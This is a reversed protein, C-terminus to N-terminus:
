VLYDNKDDTDEIAKQNFGRFVEVDNVSDLTGWASFMGMEPLYEEDKDHKVREEPDLLATFATGVRDNQEFSKFIMNYYHVYVQDDEISSDWVSDNTRVTIEDGQRLDKVQEFLKEAVMKKRLSIMEQNSNEGPTQKEQFEKPMNNFGEM